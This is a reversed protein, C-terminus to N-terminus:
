TYQNKAIPLNWRNSLKILIITVTKTTDVTSANESVTILPGISGTFSKIGFSNHVVVPIKKKIPM